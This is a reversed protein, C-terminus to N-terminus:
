DVGMLRSPALYNQEVNDSHRLNFKWDHRSHLGDISPFPIHFIATLIKECKEKDFSWQAHRDKPISFHLGAM